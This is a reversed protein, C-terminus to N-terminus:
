AASRLSAAQLESDMMDKILAKFDYEPVWGLIERAKTADGELLDVDWPRKNAEVRHLRPSNPVHSYCEVILEYISHAKGTAIVFDNPEHQLILHMAKVYDKAHGWDRYSNTSGLSLEKDQAAAICVKRTVFDKGRLPSEHNFLIGASVRSGYAKAYMKCANHAAVKSIAYPSRPRFPTSENLNRGGGFMESTSAHYIRTKRGRTCELIRLLGQYNVNATYLPCNFSEGVHSQAALNYVEEAGTSDIASKVSEYETMELPVPNVNPPLEGQSSRRYGGFVEYGLSNLYESLYFGDQGGCGTILAKM